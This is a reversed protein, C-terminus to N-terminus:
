TLMREVQAKGEQAKDEKKYKPLRKTKDFLVM